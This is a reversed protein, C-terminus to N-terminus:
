IVVKILFKPKSDKQHRVVKKWIGKIRRKRQISKLLSSLLVKKTNKSSQFNLLRCRNKVLAYHYNNDDVFVKLLDIEYKANKPEEIYFQKTTRRATM